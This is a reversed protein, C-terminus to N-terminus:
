WFWHCDRALTLTIHQYIINFHPCFKLNQM